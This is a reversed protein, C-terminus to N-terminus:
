NDDHGFGAELKTLKDRLIVASEYEENNVAEELERKLYEKDILITKYAKLKNPLKGKHHVYSGNLSIDAAITSRFYTYCDPCGVQGEEKMDSIKTACTKCMEMENPSKGPLTEKKTLNNILKSLSFDFSKGDKSIGKKSACDRCLHMEFINDGMIQQVHFVATKDKCIECIM